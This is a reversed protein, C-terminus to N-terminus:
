AATTDDAHHPQKQVFKLFAARRWPHSMPPIYKKKPKPATQGTDFDKSTEYRQSVKELAYVDKDNVCGYLSGDFALIVMVKTGKRYHVQLGQSDLMRYYDHRFQICHGCDVTRENLVALILNIKEKSPQEEFM